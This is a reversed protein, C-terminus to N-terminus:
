PTGEELEEEFLEELDPEVAPPPPAYRPAEPTLEGPRYFGVGDRGRDRVFSTRGPAFIARAGRRPIHAPRMTPKPTPSPEATDAAGDSPTTGAREDAADPQSAAAKAPATAAKAPAAQSLQRAAAGQAPQAAPPAAAVAGPARPATDTCAGLLAVLALGAVIRRMVVVVVDINPRFGAM